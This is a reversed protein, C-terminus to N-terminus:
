GLEAENERMWELFKDYNDHLDHMTGVNMITYDAMAIPGAKSLNEIEKIDRSQAQEKTLARIDRQVLREYRLEPPTYVAIVILRRFKEKLLLYEEWSYLGDIM